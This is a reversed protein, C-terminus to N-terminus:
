NSSYNKKNSFGIKLFLFLNLYNIYYFLFFGFGSNQIQTYKKIEENPLFFGKPLFIWYAVPSFKAEYALLQREKEENPGQEFYAYQM